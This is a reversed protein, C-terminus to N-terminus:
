FKRGKEADRNLAEVDQQWRNSHFMLMAGGDRSKALLAKGNSGHWVPDGREESHPPGYKETMAKSFNAFPGDYPEGHITIATVIGSKNVEINLSSRIKAVEVNDVSCERYDPLLPRIGLARLRDCQMSPHMKQASELTTADLKIGLVEFEPAKPGCGTLVILALAVLTTRM